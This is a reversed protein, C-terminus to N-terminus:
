LSQVRAAGGPSMVPNGGGGFASSTAGPLDVPFQSTFENVVSDLRQLGTAGSDSYRITQEVDTLQESFDDDYSLLAPVTTAPPQAPHNHHAPM